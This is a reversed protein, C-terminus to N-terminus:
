VMAAPQKASQKLIAVFRAGAEEVSASNDIMIADDPDCANPAARMLRRKIEDANERGRMALRRALVDFSATIHVITCHSYSRKLEPLIGRSVNAIAVSGKGVEDRVSQPLGYSLGHASWHHAFAGALKAKAFDAENMTDHDEADANSPRTIVRRVFHFLHDEALSRRAYDIITDKGAGSPGVVAVFVGGHVTESAAGAQTSISITM